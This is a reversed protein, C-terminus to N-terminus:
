EWHLGSGAREALARVVEVLFFANGETERKLLAMLDPNYTAEESLMARTLAAINEEDFRELHLPHMDALTEPLDPLEDSRYSAVIMVPADMQVATVERLLDLSETAWHLDELLLLLPVVQRQLIDTITGFLRQQAAEPALDPPPPLPTERGMLGEIDPVVAKLVAAEFDTIETVLLLRRLPERWTQLLLGGGSVSQGRMVRVGEVVALTRFEDLLRSKGVGSEGGILWGSGEGNLLARLGVQLREIEHERGVFTSAQLYSERIEVTETPQPVGAAECLEVLVARATAPRDNPDKSLLTDILSHYPTALPSLDPIAYLIDNILAQPLSPDFVREGTLLEFAVVGFSYLDSAVSTTGQLAEPSMYDVTGQIEQSVGEDSRVAIGFDVLRVRGTHDVLINAPKLDRHIVGRRHLYDLAQLTQILLTVAHDGDSTARTIPLAEELLEMTFFPLGDADFGYDLVSIIHPHRLTAMTQFERTLALRYTQENHPQQQHVRKLAILDGTLRDRARFVVGMGGAGIKDIPEYRNGLLNATTM